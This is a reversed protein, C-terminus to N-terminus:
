YGWVAVVGSMGAASTAKYGSGVAIASGGGCGFDTGKSATANGNQKAAGASSKKGNPFTTAIQAYPTALSAGAYSIASVSGGASINSLLKQNKYFAMMLSVALLKGMPVSIEGIETSQVDADTPTSVNKPPISGLFLSGSATKGGFSSSGGARGPTTSNANQTVAVGGAGVVVPYVDGESVGDAAFVEINGSSGGVSSKSSTATVHCASGSSGGSIIFSLLHTVGKPVTFEYSGAADYVALEKYVSARDFLAVFAEDPVMDADGGLLAATADKLLTAKNLPTGEDLPEDAMTVTAYFPASGNEPTILVRGAKGEAPIRDNM